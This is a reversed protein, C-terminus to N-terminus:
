YKNNIKKIIKLKRKVTEPHPRLTVKFGYSLLKEILGSVNASGELLSDKGWTPAILVNSISTNQKKKFKLLKDVRAYGIKAVIKKKLNYVKEMERIEDLHHPGACFIADYNDFAGLQYAMHLSMLAHQLYIYHVNNNARKFNYKGLDPMTMLVIDADIKSFLWNRIYGEDILFSSFNKSSFKIGPDNEDSTLYCVKFNNEKTLSYIIEDFITWYNKGESYVVIKKEEKPLHVFNVANMLKKFLNLM